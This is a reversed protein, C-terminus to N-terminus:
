KTAGEVADKATDKATDAVDKVADKAIGKPDKALKSIDKAGAKLDKATNVLEKNQEVVKEGQETAVSKGANMLAQVNDIGLNKLANSFNTLANKAKNPLEMATTKMGNLKAIIEDSMKKAEAAEKEAKAKDEKSFVMPVVPAKAKTEIETVLVPVKVISTGISTVLATANDPTAAISTKFQKLKSAFETLKTVPDGTLGEPLKVEGQLASSIVGKFQEPDLSLAKPLNEFDAIIEDALTIPSMTEDLQSQLEVSIGQLQEFSSASKASSGGKGGCAILSSSIVLLLCIFLKNITLKQM